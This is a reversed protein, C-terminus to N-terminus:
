RQIKMGKVARELLGNSIEDWRAAARGGEAIDAATLGMGSLDEMYIIMLENRKAEDILHVLRQSLVDDSAMRYGKSEL